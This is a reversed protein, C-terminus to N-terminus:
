AAGATDAEAVPPAEAIAELGIASGTMFDIRGTSVDYLAGVIAIKRSEVLERMTDSAEVIQRVRHHVNGRAIEDVFAHKMEGTLTAATMAADDDFSERIDDLIHHLHQCGTADAASGKGTLDIAATVAGCRTHGLVLVLKAGVVATGYEMSGLVKESLVNGAIRISFIDGLGQDLILEAPTRSDICSLVVALPHQGRATAGVHRVLDRDIRRNEYFRQNGLRLVDLVQAPTIATQLERTSYDVFQPEDDFTDYQSFGIMSVEVNRAPATVDRYERLMAIVDPDIYESQQGDILVHGKRPVEELTRQLSRQNLFSVQVPLVVHVVDAGIHRELIRRIPRRAHRSLIFGMAVVMGLGLGVLLDTLVIGVLTAMFPIFQDRGNAWMQRMLSPSALKIGTFLLIAALCSIPIRNLLEPLALVSVAILVGHFIASMKTAAGSYVNVSGRIVVSTIPIGGLMGCVINGVGQAVLERNPPSERQMPDIKDIAQLNILTELSAVIAITLAATYVKPNVLASFDPLALLNAFGGVEAAIPVQVLHAAGIQWSDGMGSFLAQLGLGLAVVVVPVPVKGSALRRIKGWGFLLLLSSLGIVAAGFHIDDVMAVLETFTNERDPQDFAMEGEPDADHGLVHPFQKLVLIVGIAALLGKVVSTPVFAALTGARAIGLGIQIVGAFVVALLFAEFTGLTEIRVLVVATLGAAPGSVSTHSGSIIGVVVGGVIGAVLGSFLPAGSALAIGLCLPLAVLFVVLGALLDRGVTERALLPVVKARLTVLSSESKM